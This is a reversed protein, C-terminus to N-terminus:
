IWEVSEPELKTEVHESKCNIKKDTLSVNGFYGESLMPEGAVAVIGSMVQINDGETFKTVNKRWLIIAISGTDDCLTGILQPDGPGDIKTKITLRGEVNVSKEDHSLEAIKTFEIVDEKKEDCCNIKEAIKEITGHLGSSFNIEGNYLEATYGDEISICDGDGYKKADDDWLTIGIVGTEDCLKAQARFQKGKRGNVEGLKKESIKGKVNVHLTPKQIDKIKSIKIKDTMDTKCTIQKQIKEAISADYVVINKEGSVMKETADRICICDDNTFKQSHKGWLSIKVNGTDDCLTARVIDQDNFKWPTGLKTIKGEVYDIKVGSTIENIKM